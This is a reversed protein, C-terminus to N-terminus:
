TKFLEPFNPHWGIRRDNSQIQLSGSSLFIEEVGRFNLSFGNSWHLVNLGAACAESETTFSITEDCHRAFIGEWAEYLRRDYDLLEDGSVKGQRAWRLRQASARLFCKIAIGKIRESNTVCEVQKIFIEENQLDPIDSELADYDDISLIHESYRKRLESLQFLVDAFPIVRKASSDELAQGVKQHWWGELDSLLNTIHHSPCAHGLAKVLDVDLSTLSATKCFTIKELLRLRQEPRLSLFIERDPKTTKNKSDRAATELKEHASRVNKHAANLDTIACNDELERNSAIIFSLDDFSGGTRSVLKAWNSITRWLAPDNDTINPPSPQMSHKAQFVISSSGLAVSIDDIYELGISGTPNTGCKQLAVLLAFRVQFLYGALQGPAEASTM